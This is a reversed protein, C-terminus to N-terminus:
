VSGTIHKCANAATFNDTHLSLLLLLTCHFRLRHLCSALSCAHMNSQQDSGQQQQQQQQQDAARDVQTLL